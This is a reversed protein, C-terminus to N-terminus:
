TTTVQSWRAAEKQRAQKRLASRRKSGRVPQTSPLPQSIARPPHRRSSVSEPVLHELKRCPFVLWISPKRCSCHWAFHSCWQCCLSLGELMSLKPTRLSDHSHLAILRWCSFSDWSSSSILHHLPCNGCKFIRTCVGACKRNIM